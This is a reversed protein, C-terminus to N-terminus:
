RYISMPVEPIVPKAQTQLKDFHTEIKTAEDLLPKTDIKFKPFLQNFANLLRAAVRIISIKDGIEGILSIVERDRWRGENMLVATVGVLMGVNLQEIGVEDLMARAADNSGLGYVKPDIEEETKDQAPLAEFSVIKSCNLEKHCDLLKYALPRSLNAPPQFETLVVGIKLDESAYGRAPFKPKKAFILSVPPFAESELAFVQDLNLSSVIHSGVVGSVINVTPICDVIIGGDLNIEKFKRMEIEISM